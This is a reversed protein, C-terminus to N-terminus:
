PNSEDLIELVLNEIYEKLVGHGNQRIGSWIKNIIDPRRQQELVM